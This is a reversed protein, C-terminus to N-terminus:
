WPREVAVADTTVTESSWPASVGPPHSVLSLSTFRLFRRQAMLDRGMSNTAAQIPSLLRPTKRSTEFATDRNRQVSLVLQNAIYQWRLETWQFLALHHVLVVGGSGSHPQRVVSTTARGRSSPSLLPPHPTQTAIKRLPALSGRASEHSPNGEGDAM